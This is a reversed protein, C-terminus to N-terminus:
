INQNGSELLRKKVLEMAKAQATIELYIKERSGSTNIKQCFNDIMLTFHNAKGIALTNKDSGVKVHILNEMTEPTTYCRDLFISGKTGIIQYFCEYLQNFGYSIQGIAGSEMVISATGSIDLGKNNRKQFGAGKVPQCDFFFRMASVPYGVIDLFAGGGLEKKLRFNGADKLNFGFSSRFILPEGIIGQKLIKKVESHQPHHLYMFGEFLYRKHTKATQVMEETSSSDISLPKECLVHKGNELSKISWEKHLSNPLSIYVMDIDPSQLLAEYTYPKVGLDESWRRAKEKSRSAIGSLVAHRCNRIAPLFKRSAIDSCGLIGIRVVKTKM